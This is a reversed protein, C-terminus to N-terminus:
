KEGLTKGSILLGELIFILNFVSCICTKFRVHFLAFLLLPFSIHFHSIYLYFQHETIYLNRYLLFLLIVFNFTLNFRVGHKPEKYAWWFFLCHLMRCQTSPSLDYFWSISPMLSSSRRMWLSSRRAFSM